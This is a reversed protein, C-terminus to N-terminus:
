LTSDNNAARSNRLGCPWSRGSKLHVEKHKVVLTVVDDLELVLDAAILLDHLEEGLM